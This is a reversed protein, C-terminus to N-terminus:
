LELEATIPFHDSAIVKVTNARLPKFGKTFIYDIRIHPNDSTFTLEESGLEKHVDTFVASLRKVNVDDPTMNFDGMLIIPNDINEALSLALDVANDREGVGLGFHSNLVTIVKGDIIYDTRLICRTEYYYGAVRQQVPVDPIMYKEAKVFPHKSWVANGYFCNPKLELTNGFYCNGGLENEFFSPEDPYSAIEPNSGKRVENLSVIDACQAKVTNAMLPLDIVDGSLNHNRGHQINFTMVKLKM